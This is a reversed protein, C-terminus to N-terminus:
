LADVPPPPSSFARAPSFHVCRVHRSLVSGLTRVKNGLMSSLVDRSFVVEMWAPPPWWFEVEPLHLFLALVLAHELYHGRWRSCDDSLGPREPRGLCIIQACEVALAVPYAVLRLARILEGSETASAVLQRPLVCRWIANASAIGERLGRHVRLLADVDCANLLRLELLLRIVSIPIGPAAQPRPLTVAGADAPLGNPYRRLLAHIARM